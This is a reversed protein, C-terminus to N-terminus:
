FEVRLGVSATWRDFDYLAINSWNRTYTIRPRLYINRSILYKIGISADFREDERETLFLLDRQDYRRLDFGLGGVVALRPALPAEIGLNAAAFDNSNADGAQRRTEEHGASVSLIWIRSAYTAALAYRDSDRLPDGEYDFRYLQASFSLADGGRLVHTYQAIAGYAQRYSDHGLWFQQAQGSLSVVDRNAFSHAYGFTGTLSQQDFAGSSFNERWSGLVSGFLRDQRGLAAVGSIGALAEAYEDEIATAGGGLTGPGLGAFLPIVISTLDTASNINSDHGASVDFFGSLGSGGGSIERDYQRVLGTFRQRVPDPLSPDDVVTDFQARATDIDGAMAYARALEARAPANDPQVALVRQLAIIAEGPRGSDIASIGLLFDFQADGAREEVRPALLRYAAEADGSRQLAAAQNVLADQACAASPSIAASTCALAAILKLRANRIM